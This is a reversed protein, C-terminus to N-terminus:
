IRSVDNNIAQLIVANMKETAIASQIFANIYCNNGINLLGKM